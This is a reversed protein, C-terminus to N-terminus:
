MAEGYFEVSVKGDDTSTKLSQIMTATATYFTASALLLPLLPLISKKMTM